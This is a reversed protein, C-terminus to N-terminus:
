CSNSYMVGVQITDHRINSVINKIVVTNIDSEFQPHWEASKFITPSPAWDNPDDEPPEYTWNDM